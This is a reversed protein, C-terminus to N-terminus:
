YEVDLTIISEEFSMKEIENERVGKKRCWSKFKDINGTETIIFDGDEFIFRQNMAMLFMAFSQSARKIRIAQMANMDRLKLHQTIIKNAYVFNIM